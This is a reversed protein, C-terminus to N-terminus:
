RRPLSKDTGAVDAADGFGVGVIRDRHLLVGCRDDHEWFCGFALGVSATGDKAVELVHLRLGDPLPACRSAPAYRTRGSPGIM